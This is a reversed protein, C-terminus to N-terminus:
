CGAGARQTSPERRSHGGACPQSLGEQFTQCDFTHMGPTSAEARTYTLALAKTRKVAGRAEQTGAKIGKLASTNGPSTM